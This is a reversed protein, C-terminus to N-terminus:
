RQYWVSFVHQSDYYERVEHIKGDRIRMLTHYENAYVRGNKLRGHSEVELAVSDGEAILSKVRMRLGDELQSAMRRFVRAIQEKTLRGVGPIQEPKGALWWTADDSMTALAGDIDNADFRTFFSCALQKNIDTQTQM